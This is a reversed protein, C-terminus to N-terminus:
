CPLEFSLRDTMPVVTSNVRTTGFRFTVVQNVKRHCENVAFKKGESLSDGNGIHWAARKLEREKAHSIRNPTQTDDDDTGMCIRVWRMQGWAAWTQSITNRSFHGQRRILLSKARQAQETAL